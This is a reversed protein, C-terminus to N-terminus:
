YRQHFRRFLYFCYFHSDADAHVAFVFRHQFPCQCTHTFINLSKDIIPITIIIDSHEHDHISNFNDMFRNLLIEVLKLLFIINIQTIIDLCGVHLLDGVLLPFYLIFFNIVEIMKDESFLLKLLSFLPSKCGSFLLVFGM